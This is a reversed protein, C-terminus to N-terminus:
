GQSRTVPNERLCTARRTKTNFKVALMAVVLRACNIVLELVLKTKRAAASRKGPYKANTIAVPMMEMAQKRNSILVRANTRSTTFTIAYASRENSNNIRNTNNKGRILFSM